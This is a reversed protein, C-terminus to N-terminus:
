GAYGIVIRQRGTLDRRVEGRMGSSGLLRQVAEIQPPDCEFLAAAGRAMIRPLDAVCRRIVDLGDTGAVVADRPEFALSTREGVWESVTDDRLYPLNACVIDVREAIPALLDGRRLEVRDAVGNALANAEAVALADRSSDTAIVRVSHEHAAIAVAIAGSGTGVDVVVLVRGAILERAADVLVETEPRPILVRPDVHFRLGYFEKFGRLYAVPEGAARREVLERFRKQQALSLRREPHAFLAERGVGLLHALLVDADLTATNPDVASRLRASATTRAEGWTPM